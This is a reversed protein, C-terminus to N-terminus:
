LVDEVASIGIMNLDQEFAEPEMTVPDVGDVMSDDVEKSAFM